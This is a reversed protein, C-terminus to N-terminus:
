PCPTRFRITNRPQSRTEADYARNTGIAGIIRGNSLRIHTCRSNSIVISSPQGAFPGDVITGTRSLADFAALDEGNASVTTIDVAGTVALAAGVYKLSAYKSFSM